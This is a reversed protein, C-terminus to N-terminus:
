QLKNLKDQLEQEDAKIQEPDLPKVLKLQSKVAEQRALAQTIKKANNQKILKNVVLATLMVLASIVMLDFVILVM